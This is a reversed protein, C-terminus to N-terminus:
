DLLFQYCQFAHQTINSKTPQNWWVNYPIAASLTPFPIRQTTIKNWKVKNKKWHCLYNQYSEIKIEEKYIM